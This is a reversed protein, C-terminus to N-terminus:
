SIWTRIMGPPEIQWGHDTQRYVIEFGAGCSPCRNSFPLYVQMYTQQGDRLQVVSPEEFVIRNRCATGIMGTPLAALAASPLKRRPALPVDRYFVHLSPGKRWGNVVPDNSPQATSPALDAAICYTEGTERLKSAALAVAKSLVSDVELGSIRPTAADIGCATLALTALGTVVSRFAIM